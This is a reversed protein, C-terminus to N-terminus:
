LASDERAHIGRRLSAHKQRPRCCDLSASTRYTDVLPFGYIYAEKAIARVDAPSPASLAMRPASGAVSLAVTALIAQRRTVHM